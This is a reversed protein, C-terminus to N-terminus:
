PGDRRAWPPLPARYALATLVVLAAIGLAGDYLRTGGFLWLNGPSEGELWRPYLALVFVMGAHAGMGAYLSGTRERLRNLAMGLLFLGLLGLTAKRPDSWAEVLTGAHKLSFAPDFGEPTPASRALPKLNHVASFLLASAVNGLTNKLYGRVLIEEFLSVGVAAALAGAVAALLSLRHEDPEYPRGGLAWSVGLVLVFLPLCPLAGLAARRLRWPGRFGMARLKGPWTRIPGRGVVLAIVLAVQLTRTMVRHVPVGACFVAVLPSLLFMALIAVGLRVLFDQWPKM